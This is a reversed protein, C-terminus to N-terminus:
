GLLKEDDRCRVAGESAVSFYPQKDNAGRTKYLYQTKFGKLRLAAVVFM